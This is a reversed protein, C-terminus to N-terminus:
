ARWSSSRSSHSSCFSFPFQLVMKLCRWSCGAQFIWFCAITKPSSGFSPLHCSFFCNWWMAGLWLHVYISWDFMNLRCSGIFTWVQLSWNSQFVRCAQRRYLIYANGFMSRWRMMLFRPLGYFLGTTNGHTDRYNVNVYTPGYFWVPFNISTTETNLFSCATATRRMLCTIGIGNM